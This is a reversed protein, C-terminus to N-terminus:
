VLGGSAGVPRLLGGGSAGTHEEILLEIIPVRDDFTADDWAAGNWTSLLFAGPLWLTEADDDVPLKYNRSQVSEYVCEFGIYYSTGYSLATLSSDDFIVELLANDSGASAIPDILVVTDQIVDGAADWIAAIFQRHPVSRIAITNSVLSTSGGGVTFSSPDESDTRVGLAAAGCSNGLGSASVTDGYGSPYGSIASTNAHGLVAIFLTDELGWSPALSPPDVTTGSSATTFSGYEPTADPDHGTIRYSFHGSISNNTTELTLTDSGEAIKWYVLVQLGNASDTNLLNWNDGSQISVTNSGGTSTCFGVLLLDGASISAPMDIPHTTDTFTTSTETAAVVPYAAAAAAITPLARFGGVTFTSGLDGDLTFKCAVREGVADATGETNCGIIMQGYKRGSSGYGYVPQSGTVKGWGGGTDVSAVPFGTINGTSGLSHGVEIFNGGDVTGSDYEIVLALLQGRTCVYSNDLTKWNSVAGTWSSSSVSAPSGGGLYTGDPEGNADVGQLGIKYTPPTGSISAVYIAVRTITMAQTARFVWAMRYTADSLTGSTLSTDAPCIGLQQTSLHHPFVSAM